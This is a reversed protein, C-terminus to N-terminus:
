VNKLKSLYDNLAEKQKPTVWARFEILGAERRKDRFRKVDTARSKPKSNITNAIWGTGTSEQKDCEFCLGHEDYIHKHPM